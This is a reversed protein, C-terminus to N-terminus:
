PFDVPFLPCNLSDWEKKPLIYYSVQNFNHNIKDESLQNKSELQSKLRELKNKEGCHLIEEFGNQNKILYFLDM